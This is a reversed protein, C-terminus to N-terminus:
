NTSTHAIKTMYARERARDNILADEDEECLSDTEKCYLYSGWYEIQEGKYMATEKKRVTQVNHKKFCCPCQRLTTSITTHSPINPDTYSKPSATSVFSQQLVANMDTVLRRKYYYDEHESTSGILEDVTPIHAHPNKLRYLRCKEDYDYPSGPRPYDYGGYKYYGVEPMIIPPVFKLLTDAQMNEAYYSHYFNDLPQIPFIDKYVEYSLAAFDVDSSFRVPIYREHMHSLSTRAPNPTYIPFGHGSLYQCALRFATQEITAGFLETQFSEFVERVTFPHKTFGHNEWEQIAQKELKQYYPWAVVYLRYRFLQQKDAEALENHVRRGDAYDIGKAILSGIGWFLALTILWAM